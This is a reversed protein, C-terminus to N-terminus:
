KDSEARVKALFVTPHFRQPGNKISLSVSAAMFHVVKQRNLSSIATQHTRIRSLHQQMEKECAKKQEVTCVRYM